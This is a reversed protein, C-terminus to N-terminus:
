VGKPRGTVRGFRDRGYVLTAANIQAEANEEPTQCRLCLLGVIVGRELTANWEAQGRYRRDCRSCRASM